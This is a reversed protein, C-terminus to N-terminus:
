KVRVSSRGTICALSLAEMSLFQSRILRWVGIANTKSIQATLCPQAKLKKFLYSNLM